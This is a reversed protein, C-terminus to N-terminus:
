PAPCAQPMLTEPVLESQQFQVTQLFVGLCLLWGKCSLAGGGGLLSMSARSDGKEESIFPLGLQGSYDRISGGWPAM